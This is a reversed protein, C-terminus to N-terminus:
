ARLSLGQQTCIKLLYVLQGPISLKGANRGMAVTRSGDEWGELLHGQNRGIESGPRWDEWQNQISKWYIRWLDLTLKQEKCGPCGPQGM